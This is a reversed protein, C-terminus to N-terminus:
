GWLGGCGSLRRGRLSGGYRRALESEKVRRGMLWGKVKGASDLEDLRGLLAMMVAALEEPTKGPLPPPTVSPEPKRNFRSFIGM